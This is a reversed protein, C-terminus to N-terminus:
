SHRKISRATSENVERGLEQTMKKAAKLPGVDICLKAINARVEPTYNNNGGHKRKRSRTKLAKESGNEREDDFERFLSM